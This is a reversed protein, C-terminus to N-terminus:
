PHAIHPVHVVRLRAGSPEIRPSIERKWRFGTHAPELPRRHLHKGQQRQRDFAARQVTWPGQGSRGLHEPFERGPRVQARAIRGQRPGAHRLDGRGSRFRPRQARQLLATAPLEVRRTVTSVSSSSPARASMKLVFHGGTDTVWINDDGDVRLGHPNTFLGEALSRLFKGTSDFELLAHASRNFVLINGKSNVAVGSCPGFNMGTPLKFVDPVPNYGLDPVGAMSARVTEALDNM